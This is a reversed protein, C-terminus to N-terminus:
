VTLKLASSSMRVLTHIFSIVHIHCFNSNVTPYLNASSWKMFCWQITVGIYCGNQDVMPSINISNQLDSKTGQKNMNRQNKRTTTMAIRPQQSNDVKKAENCSSDLLVGRWMALRCPLTSTTLSRRSLWAFGWKFFLTLWKALTTM